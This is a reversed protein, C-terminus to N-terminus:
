RSSKYAAHIGLFGDNGYLTLLTLSAVITPLAFPGIM